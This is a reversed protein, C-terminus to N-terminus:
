AGSTMGGAAGPRLGRIRTNSDAWRENELTGPGHEAAIRVPPASRRYHPVWPEPAPELDCPLGGPRRSYAALWIASHAKLVAEWEQALSAPLGDTAVAIAVPWARAFLTNRARAQELERRLILLPGPDPPACQAERVGSRTGAVLPDGQYYWNAYHHACWGRAKAPKACGAIACVRM